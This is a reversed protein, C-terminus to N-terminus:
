FNGTGQSEQDAFLNLGLVSFPRDVTLFLALVMASNPMFEQCDSPLVYVLM